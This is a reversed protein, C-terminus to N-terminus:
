CAAGRGLVGHLVVDVMEEPTLAGSRALMPHSGAVVLARLVRVVETLPLRFADRDSELLAIVAVDVRSSNENRTREDTKAREANPQGTHARVSMMLTIIDRVWTQLVTTFAVMRERLPLALDITALEAVIPEPDTAAGIVAQILADKDPFVRFITGEAVGSAEALQRTSVGVGHERVLPLVAAILAARRQAPPLPRARTSSSVGGRYSLSRESVM